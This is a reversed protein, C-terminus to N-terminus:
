RQPRMLFGVLWVIAARGIFVGVVAELSSAAFDIFQSTRGPVWLQGVELIRGACHIRHHLAVPPDPYAFAISAATGCYAIAHEIQGPLSTRTEWDRPIWSLWVLVAVCLWGTVRLARLCSLVLKLSM